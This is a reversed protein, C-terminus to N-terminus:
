KEIWAAVERHRCRVGRSERKKTAEFQVGIGKNWTPDVLRVGSVEARESTLLEVDSRMEEQLESTTRQTVTGFYTSYFLSRQCALVEETKCMGYWSSRVHIHEVCM